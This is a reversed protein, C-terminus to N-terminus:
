LNKQPDVMYKRRKGWCLEWLEHLRYYLIGVKYCRMYLKALFLHILHHVFEHFLISSYFYKIRGFFTRTKAKLNILVIVDYETDFKAKAGYIRLGDCYAKSHGYKDIYVKPYIVKPLLRVRM